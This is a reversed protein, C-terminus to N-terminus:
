LEVRWIRFKSKYNNHWKAWHYYIYNLDTPNDNVDNQHYSYWENRYKVRGVLTVRTGNASGYGLYKESRMWDREFTNWFVFNQEYPTYNGCHSSWKRLDKGIEKKSVKAILKWGHSNYIWHVTGNPDIRYAVICFESKGYREYRYNIRFENSSFATTSQTSKLEGNDPPFIEFDNSQPNIEGNDLLFIPNTTKKSDEEGLIAEKKEGSQTFYWVVIYDELNPDEGNNIEINPSFIPQKTEDAIEINPIFICPAYNEISNGDDYYFDNVIEDFSLGFLNLKQDIITKYEPFSTTLSILNATHNPSNRAMNIIEQNFSSTKVLDEIAISLRYLYTNIKEDEADDTNLILDEVNQDNESLNIDLGYNITSSKFSKVTDQKYEEKETCSNFLFIAFIISIILTYNNFLRINYFNM